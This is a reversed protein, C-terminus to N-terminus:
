SGSAVVTGSFATASPAAAPKAARPKRPTAKAARPKADPRQILLWDGTQGVVTGGMLNTSVAEFLSAKVYRTRQTAM